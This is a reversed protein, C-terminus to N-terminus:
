HLGGAAASLAGGLGAIAMWLITAVGVFRWFRVQQRLVKTFAESAPAAAASLIEARYYLVHISPTLILSAMFFVMAAAAKAVPVEWFVGIGVATLVILAGITVGVSGITLLLPANRALRTFLEPPLVNTPKRVPRPTEVNPPILAAM